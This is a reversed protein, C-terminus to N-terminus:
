KNGWEPLDGYKEKIKKTMAEVADPVSLYDQNDGVKQYYSDVEEEAHARPSENPFSQTFQETHLENSYFKALENVLEEKRQVSEKSKCKLEEEDWVSHRRHGCAIRNKQMEKSKKKEKLCNEYKKQQKSPGLINLIGPINFLRLARQCNEEESQQIQDEIKNAAASVKNAVKNVLNVGLTLAKTAGHVVAKQVDQGLKEWGKVTNDVFNRSTCEQVEDNWFPKDDSDTADKKAMCEATKALREQREKKREIKVTTEEMTCKLNQITIAAVNKRNLHQLRTAIGEFMQIESYPPKQSDRTVVTGMLVKKDKIVLPIKMNCCSVTDADKDRDEIKVNWEGVQCVKRTFIRFAYKTKPPDNWLESHESFITKGALEYYKRNVGFWDSSDGQDLDAADERKICCQTSGDDRQQPDKLKLKTLELQLEIAAETMMMEETREAADTVTVLLPAAVSCGSAACKNVNYGTKASMIKDDHCCYKFGATGKYLRIEGSYCLSSIRCTDRILLGLSRVCCYDGEVQEPQEEDTQEDIQQTKKTSSDGRLKKTVKLREKQDLFSNSLAEERIVRREKTPNIYSEAEESLKNADEFRYAREGVPNYHSCVGNLHLINKATTHGNIRRDGCNKGVFQSHQTGLGVCQGSDCQCHQDCNFGEQLKHERKMKTVFEDLKEQTVEEFSVGDGDAAAVVKKQDVESAECVGRRLKVGSKVGSKLLHLKEAFASGMDVCRTSEGTCEDDHFCSSGGVLQHKNALCKGYDFHKAARCTNTHAAVEKVGPEAVLEDRDLLTSACDWENKCYMGEVMCAECRKTHQNCFGGGAADETSSPLYTGYTYVARQLKMPSGWSCAIKCDKDTKCLPSINALGAGGGDQVIREIRGYVQMIRELGCELVKQTPGTQLATSVWADVLDFSLPDGNQIAEERGNGENLFFATSESNPDRVNDAFETTGLNTEITEVSNISLDKNVIADVPLSKLGTTVGSSTAQQAATGVMKDPEKRIVLKGESKVLKHLQKGGPIKLSSYSITDVEGCSKACDGNLIRAQLYAKENGNKQELFVRVANATETQKEGLASLDNSDDLEEAWTKTSESLKKELAQTGFIDCHTLSFEFSVAKQILSLGIMISEQCKDQGGDAVGFCKVKLADIENKDEEHKAEFKLEAINTILNETSSTGHDDDKTDPVPMEEITGLAVSALTMGGIIDMAAVNMPFSVDLRMTGKEVFGASEIAAAVDYFISMDFCFKLHPAQGDEKTHKAVNLRWFKMLRTFFNPNSSPQKMAVAAIGSLDAGVVEPSFSKGNNGHHQCDAANMKESATVGENMEKLMEHQSKAMQGDMINAMLAANAASKRVECHVGTFLDENCTCKFGGFSHPLPVDECKANNLCPRSACGGFVMGTLGTCVQLMPGAMFSGDIFGTSAGIGFYLHTTLYPIVRKLFLDVLKKIWQILAIFTVDDKSVNGDEGEGGDGGDGGASLELLALEDGSTARNLTDVPLRGHQQLWRSRLSAYSITSLHDSYKEVGSVFESVGDLQADGHSPLMHAHTKAEEILADVETKTRPRYAAHHKRLLFAHLSNSPDPHDNEHNELHKAFASRHHSLLAETNDHITQVHKKSWLEHSACATDFAILLLGSILCFLSTM